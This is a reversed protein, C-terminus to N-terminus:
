NRALWLKLKGVDPVVFVVKGEVEAAAIPPDPRSVNDGQTTFVLGEPGDEVAVIRHVVAIPGRQFRIVDGVQLSGPDVNERIFAVDGEEYAPEMSIGAITFPKVGFVGTSVLVVALVATAATGLGIRGALGPGAAAGAEEDDVEALEGLELLREKGEDTDAYISRVLSSAILPAGVGIILLLLWGLDPLVPSFWAFALLAARYGIAPGLGGLRVLWTALISLALTPAWHGGVVPLFRGAEDFSTWQAAPVAIVFLVLATAGFALVENFRRWAHYLYARAVEIGFLLTFVYLGNKPYNLLRGASPSDGFGFVLGAIVLVGVHFIGVFFAIGTLRLSFQPANELRRWLLFALAALTAWLLPQAVYFNLDPNSSLARPFLWGTLWYAIGLYALVIGSARLATTPSHRREPHLLRHLTTKASAPPPPGAAALDPAQPAM